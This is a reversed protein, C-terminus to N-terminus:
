RLVEGELRRRLEQVQRSRDEAWGCGLRDGGRSIIRANIQM